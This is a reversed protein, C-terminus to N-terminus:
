LPAMVTDRVAVPADVWKFRVSVPRSLGAERRQGSDGRVRSLLFGERM